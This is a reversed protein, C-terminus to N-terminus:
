KYMNISDGNNCILIQGSLCSAADSLLFCAVEAVEEPLYFRGTAYSDSCLSDRSRGTMDTATIGPAIANIRIHKRIHTKALGQTFSNIAAKILGYPIDDVYQSRESSLFLVSGGRRNEKEYLALFSQTLFYVAKLNTDFQRDYKEQTVDFISKEHLSIGANNVLIDIGGLIDHAKNLFFLIEDTNQVDFLIFNCGIDAAANKLKEEDRGTILVSAGEEKFRKAMYFGLGRSGGTVIIKKGELRKNPALFSVNVASVRVPRFFNLIKKLAVKLTTKNLKM